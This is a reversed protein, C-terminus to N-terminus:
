EQNSEFWPHNISRLAKGSDFLVKSIGELLDELDAVDKIGKSDDV